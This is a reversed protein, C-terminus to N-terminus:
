LCSKTEGLLIDHPIEQTILHGKFNNTKHTCLIGLVM